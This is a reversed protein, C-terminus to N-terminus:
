GIGTEGTPCWPQAWGILILDIHRSFELVTLNKVEILLQNRNALLIGHNCAAIIAWETFVDIPEVRVLPMQIIGRDQDEIIKRIVSDIHWQRLIPLAAFNQQGVCCLHRELSSHCKFWKCCESNNM